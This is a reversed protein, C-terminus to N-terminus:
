ERESVSVRNYVHTVGCENALWHVLKENGSTIAANLPNGDVQDFHVYLYM